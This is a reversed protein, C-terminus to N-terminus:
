SNNRKNSNVSNDDDFGENRITLLFFFFCKILCLSLSGTNWNNIAIYCVVEFALPKLCGIYKNQEHIQLEPLAYLPFPEHSNWSMRQPPQFATPTPPGPAVLAQESIHRARESPLCFWSLAPVPLVEQVVREM